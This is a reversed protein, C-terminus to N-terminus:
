DNRKVVVIKHAEVPFLALIANSINQKVATKNGGDAVVLIGEIQPTLEKTVFPEGDGKGSNYVTTEEKNTGNVQRTGGSADTETTKENATKADKEVVRTGSDKYTIMVQVHGAGEISSLVKELQAEVRCKETSNGTNKEAQGSASSALKEKTKEREGMPMAIVLLLLGVLVALVWKTKDNKEVWQKLNM